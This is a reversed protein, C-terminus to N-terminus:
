RDEHKDDYVSLSHFIGTVTAVVGSWVGFVTDSHYKFLYVSAVTLIGVVSAFTLYDRYDRLRGSIAPVLVGARSVVAEVLRDEHQPSEM